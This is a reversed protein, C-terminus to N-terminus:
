SFLFPIGSKIEEKWGKISKKTGKKKTGQKRGEKV